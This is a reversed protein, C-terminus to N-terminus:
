RIVGLFRLLSHKFIICVATVILTTQGGLSSHMRNSHQMAAPNEGNLVHVTVNAPDMYQPVPRCTYNGSDSWRASRIILISITVPGKSNYVSLRASDDEVTAQGHFSLVKGDKHWYIFM